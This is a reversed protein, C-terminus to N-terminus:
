VFREGPSYVNLNSEEGSPVLHLESSGRKFILIEGGTQNETGAYTKYKIIEANIM